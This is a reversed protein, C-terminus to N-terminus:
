RRGWTRGDAYSQHLVVVALFAFMVNATLLHLLILEQAAVALVGGAAIYALATLRARIQERTITTM